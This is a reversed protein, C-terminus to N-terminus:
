SSGNPFGAEALLKKAKAVDQKIPKSRPITASTCRSLMTAM